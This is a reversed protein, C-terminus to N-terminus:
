GRGTRSKVSVVRDEEFCWATLSGGYVCGSDLGLTYRGSYYGRRAWHGHAIRTPGGYFDDWPRYPATCGAPPGTHRCMEGAATCCRVRVVFSTDESMLWGDDHPGANIKAAAADLDDWRPHVGAHVLWVDEVGARAGSLRHMLPQGRLRELLMDAEPDDFLGDLTDGKRRVAGSRALLAYVDHNGLVAHGGVDRWLRLAAASDPGRNVLDGLCWLEDRSGDFRIKALLRDLERACGQVDGILWHM